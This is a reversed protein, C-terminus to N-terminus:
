KGRRFLMLALGGGVALFAMSAPEPVTTIGTAAIGDLGATLLGPVGVDGVLTLAGSATNVTFFETQGNVTGSFYAVDTSPSVTLGMGDVFNVGLAGILATSGTTPNLSYLDAANVGLFSNNLYNYAISNVSAGTYNPLVTAVGTAPNLSLNQGFDSSVYLQSSGTLGFDIGNLTPGFGASVLTCAGSSPNITYLHNEDGLGYLTGSMWDVSSIQEGSSLGTLTVASKLTGPTSSDFSVLKNLQDSVGYVLEAKSQPCLAVLCVVTALSGRSGWFASKFTM